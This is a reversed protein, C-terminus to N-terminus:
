DNLRTTIELQAISRNLEAAEATLRGVALYEGNRVANLSKQRIASLKHRLTTLEALAARENLTHQTTM